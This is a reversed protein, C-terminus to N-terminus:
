SNPDVLIFPIDESPHHDPELTGSWVPCFQAWSTPSQWSCGAVKISILFDHTVQRSYREQCASEALEAWTRADIRNVSHNKGSGRPQTRPLREHPAQISRLPIQLLQPAVGLLCTVFAAIMGAVLSGRGGAVSTRALPQELFMERFCKIAVGALPISALTGALLLFRLSAHPVLISSMTKIHVNLGAILTWWRGWFGATWPGGACSILSIMLTVAAWLAYQSLGKLDELYEVSRDSRRLYELTWVVGSMALVQTVQAYVILAMTEPQMPFKGWRADPHQLEMAASVFGIGWWATQSIVLSRIWLPVSQIGPTFGRIAIVASHVFAVLCIVIMLITLSDGLGEFVIGCLRTLSIAGGLPGALLLFGYIRRNPEGQNAVFGELPGVIGMRGFLAVVILGAALLVLKSPSGIATEADDPNYAVVLVRKISDFETTALTNILLATGLWFALSSLWAIETLPSDTLPSSAIDIPPCAQSVPCTPEIRASKSTRDNLRRFAVSALGTIELSLGLSLLDNSRAILILGAVSFLFFGHVNAINRSTNERDILALAALFAFLLVLGQECIALPDNIWVRHHHLSELQVTPTVPDAWLGCAAILLAALSYIGWVLPPHVKRYHGWVLAIGGAALLLTPPTPLPM